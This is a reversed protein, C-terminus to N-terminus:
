KGLLEDVVPNIKTKTSQWKFVSLGGRNRLRYEAYGIKIGNEELRLEAKHMYTGFDWAKYASYTLIFQCDNPNPKDYVSTAIGHTEIRSRITPLFDHVVVKHNEEICIRDIENKTDVPQVQISTCGSIIFPLVVLLPHKINM